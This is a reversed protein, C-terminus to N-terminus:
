APSILNPSDLSSSIEGDFNLILKIQPKGFKTAALAAQQLIVADEDSESSSSEEALSDPEKVQKM